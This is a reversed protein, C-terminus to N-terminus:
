LYGLHRHAHLDCLGSRVVRQNPRPTGNRGYVRQPGFLMLFFRAAAGFLAAPGCERCEDNGDFGCSDHGPPIQQAHRREGLAARPHYWPGPLATEEPGLKAKPPARSRSPVKFFRGARRPEPADLRVRAVAIRKRLRVPSDSSSWCRRSTAAHRANSRACTMARGTPRNSARSGRSLAASRVSRDFCHFRIPLRLHIWCPREGQREPPLVIPREAM